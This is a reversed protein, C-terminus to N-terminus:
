RRKAQGNAPGGSAPGGAGEPPHDAKWKRWKAAAQLCEADSPLGLMNVLFLNEAHHQARHFGYETLNQNNLHLIVALAVDRIQVEPLKRHTADLTRGAAVCITQDELLPELAATDKDSGFKGVALIATMRVMPDVTLYKPDGHAVALALPLAESLKYKLALQLRQRLVSQEDNPCHTIWAVVLRRATGGKGVALSERVPPRQILQILQMATQNSVDSKELSGLFLMTACSGMTPAVIGRGPVAQRRLLRLLRSAWASSDASDGNEFFQVLLPGEQQQMEVFLERAPPDDGVLERYEDWGPLSLGLRGETDAAFAALRRQFESENILTVLRRAAARVEPDPGEAVSLLPGRAAAGADLLQDAARQRVTYVDDGLQM